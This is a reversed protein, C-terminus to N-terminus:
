RKKKLQAAPVLDRKAGSADGDAEVLPSFFNDKKVYEDVRFAFKYSPAARQNCDTRECFRCTTGVPVVMREPDVYPMEDAYVLHKADDAHTGLGIAYITGRSTSGYLPESEVKAFCFFTRGDPFVSYQRSIAHPTLFAQHVIWKPCSGTGHPFRLGTAAYRKSINGAVDVRQFHFPVGRRSPDSLNCLRHAVTEYSTQWIRALLEVDYRTRQTDRLLPGYPLLLAGAFYNALHIKLLRPAEGHQMVHGRTVEEHLKERDFLRLAITHALQFARRHEAVDRSLTMAGGSPDLRRIVSSVESAAAMTVKVDLAGELVRVLDEPRILEGMGHEARLADARAELTPFWNGRQELYDSVEDYPSYDFALEGPDRGGGDRRDRAGKSVEGLLNDLQSRTNKYLNFLATITSAARPEGSLVALDEEAMGLTRFLPEDLLKALGEDVRREGLQQMFEEVSLAFHELARLLLPLQMPRKGTEILSLYAPSVGLVEAVDTQSFGRALRVERLRRGMAEDSMAKESLHSAKEGAAGKALPSSVDKPPPPM